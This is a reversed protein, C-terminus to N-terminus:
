YDAGDGFMDDDYVGAECCCGCGCALWVENVITEADFAYLFQAIRNGMEHPLGLKRRQVLFAMRTHKWTEEQRYRKLFADWVADSSYYCCDYNPRGDYCYTFILSRFSEFRELEEMLPLLRLSIVMRVVDHRTYCPKLPSTSGQLSREVAGHRLFELALKEDERRIVDHLLEVVRVHCLDSDYQALLHEVLDWHRSLLALKLACDEIENGRSPQKTHIDMNPNSADTTNENQQRSGERWHVLCDWVNDGYCTTTEQSCGIDKLIGRLFVCEKAAMAM